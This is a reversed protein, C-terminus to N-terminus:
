PASLHRSLESFAAQFAAPDFEFVARLRGPLTNEILEQNGASPLSLHADKDLAGLIQAIAVDPVAQPDVAKTETYITRFALAVQRASDFDLPRSEAM